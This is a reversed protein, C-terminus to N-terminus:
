GSTFVRDPLIPCHLETHIVEPGVIVAHKVVAVDNDPVNSRSLENKVRWIPEWWCKLIDLYVIINNLGLLLAETEILKVSLRIEM